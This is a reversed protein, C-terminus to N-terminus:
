ILEASDATSSDKVEAFLETVLLESGVVNMVVLIPATPLLARSSIM